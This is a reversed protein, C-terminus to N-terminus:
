GDPTPLGLYKEETTTNAVGLIEKTKNEDEQVCQSGFMIPCKPPNILQGTCAEFLQLYEKIIQAQDKKIELFLLTDDAFLLHSIGPVRRCIMLEQVSRRQMADQLIRSLGDAIFLFLYPSLPYGQCLGHSPQFSDLLVNNFHISFKVNTVCEMVWQMWRSQFGVQQLVGKLYKWHVRDYAKILDLKFAGFKKSRNNGCRIAHLCEFAILANDTIMRSPIFASQTPSIIDELLPRLRNVLCKSVIKYIINCLSIPRYDKLLVLKETKPILMIGTENVRPPM